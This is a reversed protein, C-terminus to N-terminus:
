VLALQACRTQVMPVAPYSAPFPCRACAHRLYYKLTQGSNRTKAFCDLIPPIAGEFADFTPSATRDNGGDFRIDLSVSIPLACTQVGTVCHDRIGDEAQFFFICSM